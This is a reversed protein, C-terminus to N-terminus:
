TLKLTNVSKSLVNIGATTFSINSFPDPGLTLLYWKQTRLILLFLIFEIYFFKSFIREFYLESLSYIFYKSDSQSM